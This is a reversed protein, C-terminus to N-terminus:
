LMRYYFRSDVAMIPFNKPLQNKQIEHFDNKEYFRHAALFKDTTGLFISRINKDISWKIACELLQQAVGKQKGRYSKHVFMKRLAVQHNNIDLLSITGIIKGEAIAVWFNGDGQQYFDKIMKLDPQDDVTILIGFEDRQISVILNQVELADESKYPRILTSM